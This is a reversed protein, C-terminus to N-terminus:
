NLIFEDPKELMKFAKKGLKSRLYFFRRGRLRHTTLATIVQVFDWLPVTGNRVAKIAEFENLTDRLIDGRVKYRKLDSILESIEVEKVPKMVVDPNVELHVVGQATKRIWKAFEKPLFRHKFRLFGKGHDTLGNQCILRKWVNSLANAFEGVYNNIISFGRKLTEVEPMEYVEHLYSTGTLLEYPTIEVTETEPFEFEVEPLHFDPRVRVAYEREVKELEEKALLAEEVTSIPNYDASVFGIREEGGNVGIVEYLGAFTKTNQENIRYLPDYIITYKGAGERLLSFDEVLELRKGAKKDLEYVVM